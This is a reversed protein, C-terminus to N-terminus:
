APTRGCRPVTRSPVTGCRPSRRMRGSGAPSPTYLVPSDFRIGPWRRQAEEPPLFEAPIGAASLAAHVDGFAPNTGHNVVGVTDLLTAGSESELEAWLRRAEVSRRWTGHIRTRRISIALRVTRLAAAIASRRVSWCCFRAQGPAGSAVRDGPGDRWRGRDRDRRTGHRWQAASRTLKRAPLIFAFTVDRITVLESCFNSSAIPWLISPEPVRASSEPASAAIM